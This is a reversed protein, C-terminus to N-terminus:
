LLLLAAAASALADAEAAAAASEGAYALAAGAEEAIDGYLSGEFFVPDYLGVIDEFEDEVVYEALEGSEAFPAEMFNTFRTGASRAAARAELAINDYLGTAADTAADAWRGAMAFTAAELDSVNAMISDRIIEADVGSLAAIEAAAQTAAQKMAIYSAGLATSTVIVGEAFQTAKQPIRRLRKGVRTRNVIRKAFRGSERSLRNQVGASILKGPDLFRVHKNQPRTSATGPHGKFQEKNNKALRRTAVRIVRPASKEGSARLVPRNGHSRQTSNRRRTGRVVGM